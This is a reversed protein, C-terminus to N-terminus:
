LLKKLALMTDNQDFVGSEHIIAKQTVLEKLKEYFDDDSEAIIGQTQSIQEHAAAYNATLIYTGLIQAEGIVMPYGEYASYLAFLDSHKIYPYPNLKEGEFILLDSVGLSKALEANQTFDPGDGVIRWKFSNINESKLRQCLKVIEDVRKSANDVRCVSVIDFEGKGFPKYSDAAKIIEDEPFLNHVVSLKDKYEPVLACFKDKVANSVCIISDFSSYIKKCYERDFCALVPDTHIWAAKKNATVFDSVFLNTGRNFKQYPVDTFFSIATDYEKKCLFEKKFLDSYLRDAGVIRVKLMMYLRILIDVISKSKLVSSFPTAILGLRRGAFKVNINQPVEKFLPGGSFSYVDIDLEGDSALTKLVNVFAKQVGGIYFNQAVFLIKKM